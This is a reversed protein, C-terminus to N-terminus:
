ITETIGELPKGLQLSWGKNILNTYATNSASTRPSSGNYFYGYARGNTDLEILMNDIESPNISNDYAQIWSLNSLGTVDLSTILPNNGVQLQNFNTLNAMDLSTLSSMSNVYLGQLNSLGTVDLSSILPNDKVDLYHLNTLGTVDLSTLSPM